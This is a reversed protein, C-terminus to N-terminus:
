SFIRYADRALPRRLGPAPGRARITWARRGRCGSPRTRQACLHPRGGVSRIERLSTQAAEKAEDVRRLALLYGALNSRTLMILDLRNRERPAADFIEQVMEVAREANGRSFEIEAFNCLVGWLGSTDGLSRHMAAAETM